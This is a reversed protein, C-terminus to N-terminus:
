GDSGFRMSVREDAVIKNPNVASPSVLLDHVTSYIDGLIM